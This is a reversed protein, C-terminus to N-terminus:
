AVGSSSPKVAEPASRMPTFSIVRKPKPLSCNACRACRIASQM